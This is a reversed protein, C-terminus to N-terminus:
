FVDDARCTLSDPLTISVEASRSAEPICYIVVRACASICVKARSIAESIWRTPLRMCMMWGTRGRARWEIEDVSDRLAASRTDLTRMKEGRLLVGNLASVMTRKTIDLDNMIRQMRAAAHHDSDMRIIKKFFV